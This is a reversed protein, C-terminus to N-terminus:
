RPDRRREDCGLEPGTERGAAVRAVAATGVLVLRGARAQVAGAEVGGAVAVRGQGRLRGVAERVDLALRERDGEGVLAVVVLEVDLDRELDLERTPGARRDREVLRDRLDGLALLRRNLEREVAFGREARHDVDVHRHRLHRALLLGVVVLRRIGREEHLSLRQLTDSKESAGPITARAAAAAASIARIQSSTSLKRKRRTRLAWFVTSPSCPSVSRTACARSRCCANSASCWRTSATAACRFARM